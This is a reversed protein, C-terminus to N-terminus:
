EDPDYWSGDDLQSGGQPPPDDWWKEERRPYTPRPSSSATTGSSSCGQKCAGCKGCHYWGCTPCRSHLNSSIRSKCSWCRNEYSRPATRGASAGHNATSSFFEAILGAGVIGIGALSHAVVKVTSEVANEPTSWDYQADWFGPKEPPKEESV